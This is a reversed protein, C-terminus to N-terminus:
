PLDRVSSDHGAIYGEAAPRLLADLVWSTWPPPDDRDSIRELRALVEDTLEPEM